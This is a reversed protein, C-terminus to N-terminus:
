RWGLDVRDLDYAYVAELAADAPSLDQFDRLIIDELGADELTLGFFKLFHANTLEYFTPSNLAALRSTPVQGHDVESTALVAFSSELSPKPMM